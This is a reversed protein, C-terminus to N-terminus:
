SQRQLQTHHPSLSLCPPQAPPGTQLRQTSPGLCLGLQHVPAPLRHQLRHQYPTPVQRVGPLALLGLVAAPAAPVATGRARAELLAKLSRLTRRLARPSPSLASPEAVLVM